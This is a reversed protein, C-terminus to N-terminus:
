NLHYRSRGLLPSSGRVPYTRLSPSAATSTRAAVRAILREFPLPAERFAFRNIHDEFVQRLRDRDGEPDSVLTVILAGLEARLQVRNGRLANDASTADFTTTPGIIPLSSCTDARM